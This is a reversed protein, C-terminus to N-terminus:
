KLIKRDVAQQFAKRYLELLKGMPDNEKKEIYQVTVWAPVHQENYKDVGRAIVTVGKKGSTPTGYKAFLRNALKRGAETWPLVVYRTRQMGRCASYHGGLAKVQKAFKTFSPEGYLHLEVHKPEPAEM